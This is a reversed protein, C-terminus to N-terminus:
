VRVQAGKQLNKSIDDRICSKAKDLAMFSKDYAAIKDELTQTCECTYVFICIYKHIHVNVQIKTEDYRVSRNQGGFDTHM